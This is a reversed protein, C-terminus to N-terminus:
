IATAVGEIFGMNISLELMNHYFKYAIIFICLAKYCYDLNLNTVGIDM